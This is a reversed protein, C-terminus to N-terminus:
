PAVAAKGRGSWCGSGWRAAPGGGVPRPGSWRSPSCRRRRQGPLVPTATSREVPCGFAACAVQGGREAVFTVSPPDALNEAWEARAAALTTPAGPPFVPSGAQHRPSCCNSNRWCTSTTRGRRGSRSEPPCALPGAPAERLAHVHQQGFGLRFWADILASPQGAAGRLPRDAGGRGLHRRTRTSTARWRRKAPPM